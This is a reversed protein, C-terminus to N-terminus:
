WFGQGAIFWVYGVSMGHSIMFVQVHGRIDLFHPGSQKENNETYVIINQSTKSHDVIWKM